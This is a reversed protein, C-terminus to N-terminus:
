AGAAVRPAPLKPEVKTAERPPLDDDDEDDGIASSSGPSHAV